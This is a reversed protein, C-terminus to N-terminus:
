RRIHLWQGRKRYTQLGNDLISCFREPDIRICRSLCTDFASKNVREPVESGVVLLVEQIVNVHVQHVLLYTNAGGMFARNEDRKNSLWGALISGKESNQWSVKSQKCEIIGIKDGKERKTTVISIIRNMNM